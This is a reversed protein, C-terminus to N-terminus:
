AIASRRRRLWRVLGFSLGVLVVATSGWLIWNIRRPPDTTQSLYLKGDTGTGTPVMQVSHPVPDGVQKWNADIRYKVNRFRDLCVTGDPPKGVEFLQKAVAENIRVNRLEMSSRHTIEGKHSLTSEARVPFFRGPIFELFESIQFVQRMEPMVKVFQLVHFNRAPDFWIEYNVPFSTQTFTNYDEVEVRLEVISRGQRTRRNTSPRSKAHTLLEDIPISGGTRALIFELSMEAWVNGDLLMTRPFRAAAMKQINSGHVRFPQLSRVEAGIVWATVVGGSPQASDIRIRDGDRWYKSRREITKTQASQQLGQTILEASFTEFSKRTEQNHRLVEKLLDDEARGNLGCVLVALLAIRACSQDDARFSKYWRAFRSCDTFQM